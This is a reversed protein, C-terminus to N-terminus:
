FARIVRRSLPKPRFVYIFKVSNWTVGGTGRSLFSLTVNQAIYAQTCKLVMVYYCLLVLYCPQENFKKVKFKRYIYFFWNNINDGYKPFEYQRRLLLALTDNCTNSFKSRAASARGNIVMFGGNKSDFIALECNTLPNCIAILDIPFRTM